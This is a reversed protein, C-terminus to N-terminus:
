DVLTTVLGRDRLEEVSAAVMEDRAESDLIVHTSRSPDLSLRELRPLERLWASVDGTAVPALVFDPGNFDLTVVYTGGPAVTADMVAVKHDGTDPAWSSAILSHDGPPLHVIAYTSADLDAVAVGEKTTIRFWVGKGDPQLLPMHPQGASTVEPYVLVVTALDPQPEVPEHGVRVTTQPVCAAAGALSLAVWAM